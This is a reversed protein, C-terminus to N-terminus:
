STKEERTILHWVRKLLEVTSPSKFLDLGSNSKFLIITFVLNLGNLDIEQDNENLIWFKYSDSSTNSIKRSYKIVDQCKYTVNTFMPENAVYFEQLINTKNDGAVIDSYLFLTDEVQFKIVNQSELIGDVFHNTSHQDFGFQEYLGNTFIFRPQVVTGDMTNDHVLFTFKGTDAEKNGEPYTIEYTWGEPSMTNLIEVIKKQFSRRSYNGPPVSIPIEWHGEGLIFTNYGKQVLYYSKPINAEVVTIRDFDPNRPRLRYSFNSHSGNIKERSNITIIEHQQM